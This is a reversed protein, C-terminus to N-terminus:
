GGHLQLCFQWIRIGMQEIHKGDLAGICHPFGTVKEFEEIKTWEEPNTYVPDGGPGKPGANILFRLMFDWQM